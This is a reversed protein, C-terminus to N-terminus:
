SVQCEDQHYDNINESDNAHLEKSLIISLLFEIWVRYWAPIEIIKKVREHHNKANEAAFPNLRQPIAHSRFLSHTFRETM